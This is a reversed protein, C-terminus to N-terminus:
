SQQRRRSTVILAAKIPIVGNLNAGPWVLGSNNRRDEWLLGGIDKERTTVYM